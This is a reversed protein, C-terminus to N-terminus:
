LYKKLTEVLSENSLEIWRTGDYVSFTDTESNYSLHVNHYSALGYLGHHSSINVSYTGCRGRSFKIAEELTDFAGGDFYAGQTNLGVEFM